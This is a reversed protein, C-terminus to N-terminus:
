VTSNLRIYLQDLLRAFLKFIILFHSVISFEIYRSFVNLEAESINPVGLTLYVLSFLAQCVVVSWNSFSIDICSIINGGILGTTCLITWSSVRSVWGLLWAKTSDYMTHIFNNLAERIFCLVVTWSLYNRLRMKIKLHGSVKAPLDACLLFLSVKSDSQFNSDATVLFRYQFNKNHYHYVTLSLLLLLHEVIM